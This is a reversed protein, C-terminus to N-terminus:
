PSCTSRRAATTVAAAYPERRRGRGGAAPPTAATAPEVTAAPRGAVPQHGPGVRRSRRPGARPARHGRRTAALGGKWDIIVESSLLPPLSVGYMIRSATRHVAQDRCKKLLDWEPSSSVATAWTGLAPTLPHEALAKKNSTVTAMSFERSGLAGDFDLYAGFTRTHRLSSEARRGPDVGGHLAPSTVRPRPRIPRIAVKVSGQQAGRVPM